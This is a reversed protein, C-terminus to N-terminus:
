LLLIGSLADVKRNLPRSFTAFKAVKAHFPDGKIPPGIRPSTTRSIALIAVM